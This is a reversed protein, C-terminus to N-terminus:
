EEELALASWKNHRKMVGVPHGDVNGAARIVVSGVLERLFQDRQHDIVGPVVPM